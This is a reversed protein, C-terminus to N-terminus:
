ANRRLDEPTVAAAREEAIKARTAALTDVDMAAVAGGCSAAEAAAGAAAPVGPGRAGGAVDMDMSSVAGRDTAATPPRPAPSNACPTAGGGTDLAMPAPGAPATPAAAAPAAAAAAPPMEPVRVRGCYCAPCRFEIDGPYKDADSQLHVGHVLELISNTERPAHGYDQTLHVSGMALRCGTKGQKGKLCTPCHRHTHALALALRSFHRFADSSVDEPASIASVRAKPVRLRHLLEVAVHDVNSPLLPPMLRAFLIGALLRM